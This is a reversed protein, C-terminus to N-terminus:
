ALAQKRAILNKYLEAYRRASRAWSVDAKMGQKQLSLGHRGIPM